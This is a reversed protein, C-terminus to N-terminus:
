ITAISKLDEQCIRLVVLMVREAGCTCRGIYLADDALDPDGATILPTEGREGIIGVKIGEITIRAREAPHHAFHFVLNTRIIQGGFKVFHDVTQLFTL